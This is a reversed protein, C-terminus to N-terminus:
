ENKGGGQQSMGQILLAITASKEKVVGHLKGYLCDMNLRVTKVNIGLDKSLHYATKYGLFVDQYKFGNGLINDASIAIDNVPAQFELQRELAQEQKMIAGEIASLDKELWGNLREVSLGVELSIDEINKDRTFYPSLYAIKHETYIKSPPNLILAEYTHIAM